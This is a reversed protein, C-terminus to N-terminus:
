ADLVKDGDGPPSTAPHSQQRDFFILGRKGAIDTKQKILKGEGM